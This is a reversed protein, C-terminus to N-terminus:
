KSIKVLTQKKHRHNRTKKNGKEYIFQLNYIIGIICISLEPRKM